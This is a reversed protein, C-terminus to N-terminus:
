TLHKDKQFQDKPYVKCSDDLVPVHGEIKLQVVKDDPRVLIPKGNAPWVFSYGQDVCRTGVSLVAPTHDLVYPHVPDPLASLKVDAVESAETSGNATVLSIPHEAARCNQASVDRLMGKSVLDSESGSDVLWSVGAKPAATAISPFRGAERLAKPGSVFRCEKCTIDCTDENWCCFGCSPAVDSDHLKVTEQLQRARVQAEHQEVKSSVPVDEATKYVKTFERPRHKVPVQRGVAKVEIVHPVKRFRLRKMASVPSMLCPAANSEKAKKKPAPSNARKTDETAAAAKDDHKYFCKDGRRCKGQAHYICPTKAMEEKSMKKGKDDKNGRSPSRTKNRRPSQTRSMDEKVHKFPCKKGKDCQGKQFKYCIKDGKGREQSRGRSPSGKRNPNGCGDGKAPAAKTDKPGGAKNKEAIRNRNERLRERDILNKM